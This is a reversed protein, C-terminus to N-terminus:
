RAALERRDGRIPGEVVTISRGQYTGVIRVWPEGNKMGREARFSVTDVRAHSPSLQEPTRRVSPAPPPAPVKMEPSLAFDWEPIESWVKLIVERKTTM